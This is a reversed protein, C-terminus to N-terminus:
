DKVLFNQLVQKELQINKQKALQNRFAPCTAWLIVRHARLNGDNTTVKVDWDTGDFYMQLLDAGLQNVPKKDAIPPPGLNSICAILYGFNVKM